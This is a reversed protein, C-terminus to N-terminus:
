KRQLPSGKSRSVLRPDRLNGARLGALQPTVWRRYRTCFKNYMVRFPLVEPVDPNDDTAAGEGAQSAPLVPQMDEPRADPEAEEADVLDAELFIPAPRGAGAHDLRLRQRAPSLRPSAISVEMQEQGPPPMAEWVSEEHFSGSSSEMVTSQTCPTCGSSGRTRSSAPSSAMAVLSRLISSLSLCLRHPVAACHCPCTSCFLQLCPCLSICACSMVNPACTGCSMCSARPVRRRVPLVDECMCGIRPMHVCEVRRRPPTRSGGCHLISSCHSEFIASSTIQATCIRM